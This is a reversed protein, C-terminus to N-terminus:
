RGQRIELVVEDLEETTWVEIGNRDALRNTVNFESDGVLEGLREGNLWVDAPSTRGEFVLWVSSVGLNTPRGFRRTYRTRGDPLPEAEWPDRLRIRHVDSV